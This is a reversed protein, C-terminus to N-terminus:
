GAHFAELILDHVPPRRDFRSRKEVRHHRNTLLVVVTEQDLDIWLSTGTFGLHGM